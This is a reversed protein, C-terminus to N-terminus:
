KVFRLLVEVVLFIGLGIYLMKQVSEIKQELLLHKAEYESRTLYCAREDRNQGRWENLNDLRIKLNADALDTAKELAKFKEEVFDRLSILDDGNRAMKEQMAPYDKRREGQM